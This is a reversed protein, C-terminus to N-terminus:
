KLSHILDNISAKLVEWSTRCTAGDFNARSSVEVYPHVVNRSERLAHSFKGRDTKIWELEVAVDILTSLSWEHFQKPKGDKKPAANTTYADSPNMSTRAFLLAELVSGMLIIASLYCKAQQCMQAEIWRNKIVEELNPMVSTLRSVDPASEIGPKQDVLGSNYFRIASDCYHALAELRVRRSNASFDVDKGMDELLSSPLGPLTKFIARVERVKAEVERLGGFNDVAASGDSLRIEGLIKQLLAIHQNQGM